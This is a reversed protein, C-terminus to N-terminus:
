GTHTLVSLRLRVYSKAPPNATPIKSPVDGHGSPEPGCSEQFQKARIQSRAFPDRLDANASTNEIQTEKIQKSNSAKQPVSQPRLLVVRYRM